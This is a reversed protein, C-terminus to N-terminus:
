EHDDGEIEISVDNRRVLACVIAATCLILLTALWAPMDVTLIM